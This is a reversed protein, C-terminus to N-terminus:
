IGGNDGANYISIDQEELESYYGAIDKSHKFGFKELISHGNKVLHSNFENYIMKSSKYKCKRLINSYLTGMNCIINKYQDPVEQMTYIDVNKIDMLMKGELMTPQSVEKISAILALTVLRNESYAQSLFITKAKGDEIFSYGFICKINMSEAYHGDLYEKITIETDVNPTFYLTTNRNSLMDKGTHNYLMKHLNSYDDEDIDLEQISRLTKNQSEVLRKKLKLNWSHISQKAFESDVGLKNYEEETMEDDFCVNYVKEMYNFLKEYKDKHKSSIYKDGVIYIGPDSGYYFNKNLNYTDIIDQSIRVSYRTYRVEKYGSPDKKSEIKCQIGRCTMGANLDDCFQIPELSEIFRTQIYDIYGDSVLNINKNQM